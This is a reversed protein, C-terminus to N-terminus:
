QRLVTTGDPGVSHSLLKAYCDNADINANDCWQNATTGDSYPQPVITVYFDASKYSAYNGSWIL